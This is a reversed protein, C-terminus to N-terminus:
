KLVMVRTTRTNVGQTLRVLYLGPALHLGQGLDLTHQGVGLSGVERTTIRRGAVDLLELQAPLATPLTLHVTLAGSRTPNPRVPDLGFAITAEQAVEARLNDVGEVYRLMPQVQCTVRPEGAPDLALAPTNGWLPEGDPDVWEQNWVGDRCYVWALQHSQYDVFVMVPDGRWDLALPAGHGDLMTRGVATYTWTGGPKAIYYVYSGTKCTIHPQDSADLALRHWSAMMNLQEIGWSSGSRVAYRQKGFVGGTWGRYVIHPVGQSDLALAPQDGEDVVRTSWEGAVRECYLVQWISGNYRGYVVVPKDQADLALRPFMCWDAAEGVIDYSWAGAAKVAHVAVRLGNRMATYVVHPRGQRDLALSPAADNNGTDFGTGFELTDVMWSGNSRTAYRIDNTAYDYYVIHPRDLSDVAMSNDAYPSPLSSDVVASAFWTAYEGAVAAVALPMLSLIGACVFSFARAEHM